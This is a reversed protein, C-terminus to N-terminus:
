RARCGFPWPTLPPATPAACRAARWPLGEDTGTVTLHFRPNHSMWEDEGGASVGPRWAGVVHVTPSERPVTIVCGIRSFNALFDEWSMRPCHLPVAHPSGVPAPDRSWGSLESWFEGDEGAEYGFARKAEPTWLPSADGWDGNWEFSGRHLVHASPISAAIIRARLDCGM